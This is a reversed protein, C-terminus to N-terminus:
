DLRGMRYESKEMDIFDVSGLPNLIFYDDSAMNNKHDWLRIPLFELKEINLDQFLQKVKSNVVHFSNMSEVFDYLKVNDPYHPHFKMIADQQPPYNTLLPIGKDYNFDDPGNEPEEYLFAGDDYNTSILVWYNM